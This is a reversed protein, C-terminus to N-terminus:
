KVVRGASQDHGVEDLTTTPNTLEFWLDSENRRHYELKVDTLLSPSQGIMNFEPEFSVQIQVQDNNGPSTWILRNGKVSVKSPLKNIVNVYPPITARLEDLQIIGDVIKTELQLTYTTIQGVKPPLPGSNEYAGQYYTTKVSADFTPDVEFDHTGSGLVIRNRNMGSYGTASVNINYDGIRDVVAEFGLDISEQPDISRLRDLDNYSFILDQGDMVGGSPLTVQGWDGIKILVEINEIQNETTNLVSFEFKSRNNVFYKDEPEFQILLPPLSVTIDRERSSITSGSKSLSLRMVGLPVERTEAFLKGQIVLPQGTVLEDILVTIYNDAVISPQNVEIEFIDSLYIKLEIDRLTQKTSLTISFPESNGATIKQPLNPLITVISDVVTLETTFNKIFEQSSDPVSYILDFQFEYQDGIEGLLIYPVKIQKTQGPSIYGVSFNGFRDNNGDSSSEPYTVKLDSSILAVENNNEIVVMLEQKEGAIIATPAVVRTTIKDSDIANMGSMWIYISVGLIIVFLGLAGLLLKDLLTIRSPVPQKKVKIDDDIWDTIGPNNVQNDVQHYTVSDPEFSRDDLQNSKAELSGDNVKIVKDTTSTQNNDPEGYILKKFFNIM